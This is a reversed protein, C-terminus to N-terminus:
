SGSKKSTAITKPKGKIKTLRSKLRAAKNKHIVHKKAATDIAAFAAQLKKPTTSTRVSKLAQKMYVNVLKNQLYRKEDQHLKKIASAIIPM